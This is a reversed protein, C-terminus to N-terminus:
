REQLGLARATARGAKAVLPALLRLRNLNLREVPGSIGIAAVASRRLDLIPAAVGVVGERWEGRNIAYGADRVRQLENRFEEPNTITRPTHRKLGKIIERLVPEPAYALLAKGTAVCHAPARGGIRSYARVPELSDIKDIYLIETGDLVSLLSTESTRAALAELCSRAAPRVDLREMVAAGLEWIKLTCEYRGSAADKRVYHHHVLTQLLRHVRSKVLGLENALDTVGRADHHRALAELVALGKVLTTDM